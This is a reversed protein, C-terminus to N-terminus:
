QRQSYSGSYRDETNNIADENIGRRVRVSVADRLKVSPCLAAKFIRSVNRFIVNISQAFGMGDFIHDQHIFLIQCIGGKIDWLVDIYNIERTVSETEEADRCIEAARKQGGISGCSLCGLGDHNQRILIPLATKVAITANDALRQPQIIAVVCDEANHRRTKGPPVGFHIYREVGGPGGVRAM